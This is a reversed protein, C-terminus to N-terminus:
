RRVPGSARPTRAPGRHVPVTRPLPAPLGLVHELDFLRVLGRLRPRLRAVRLSGGARTAQAALDVLLGLCACDLFTVAGLDLWVTRPERLLPAVHERLAACAGADLEGRIEVVRSTVPSPTVLLDM